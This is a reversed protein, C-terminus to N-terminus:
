SILVTKGNKYEFYHRLEDLDSYVASEFLDDNFYSIEEKTPFEKWVIKLSSMDEEIRSIKKPFNFNGDKEALACVYGIIRHLRYIKKPEIDAEKCITKINEIANERGLKIYVEFNQKLTDNLYNKSEMMM